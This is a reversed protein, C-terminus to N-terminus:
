CVKTVCVNIHLGSVAIGNNIFQLITPSSCCCNTNNNPVQVLTNFEFTDTTAAAGTFTSIAQPQLLGNKTMQITVDGAAGATCFGDCHVMYVGSRNLQVTAPASNVATNGKQIIVNNLPIAAGAAVDLNSSYVELM